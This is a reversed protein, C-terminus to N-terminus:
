LHPRDTYSVAPDVRPACLMTRVSRDLALVFSNEVPTELLGQERVGSQVTQDAANM